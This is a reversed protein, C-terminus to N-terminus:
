LAEAVRRAVNTAAPPDLNALVIVLWGSSARLEAAMGPGGGGLGVELVPDTGPSDGDGPPPGDLLIWPTYAAPALRHHSLADWFRWLDRATAYTKGWPGGKAPELYINKRLTEGREGRGDMLTYGVAVDPVIQDTEFFGSATMGAPQFVNKDIYDFYSMGSVAEIIAGLVTFGFNSYESRSGPEFALPKPGWIEIYDQHDRLAGMPTHWWEETFYDGVGSRHVFLHGVTVKDRVEANPYAPLHRGVPDDIGLAGSAVLQAIAVRTFDKTISGIDFRTDLTNPASFERSALGYAGEFRVAGGEAVLVAGSFQGGDALARLYADLANQREGWVGTLTLAPLPNPEDREIGIADIREADEDSFRFTFRLRGRSETEAVFVIEGGEDILADTVELRGLRAVIDPFQERWEDGQDVRHAARFTAMREIDGSNHAAVWGMAIEEMRREDASARVGLCLVVASTVVAFRFQRSCPM